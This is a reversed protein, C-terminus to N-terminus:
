RKHDQSQGSQDKNESDTDTRNEDCCIYTNKKLVTFYREELWDAYNDLSQAYAYLEPSKLYAEQVDKLGKDKFFNKLVPREM